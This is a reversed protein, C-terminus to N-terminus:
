NSQRRGDRNKLRRHWHRFFADLALVDPAGCDSRFSEMAEVFQLYHSSKSARPPEYGFHRLTIEVPTNFAPWKVPNHAALIKSAGNLGFGRIHNKGNREVVSALRQEISTHEDLLQVLARKLRAKRAFLKDRFANRLRGLEGIRYFRNWEDRTFDFIPIHLAERIEQVAIRRKEYAQKFEPTDFYNKAAAVAKEREQFVAETRRDIKEAVFAEQKRIRNTAKRVRLYHSEYEAIDRLTLDRALEWQADFWRILNALTTADSTFLRCEINTRLGGVSLNGSGVVAFSNQSEVATVIVVKPHFIDLKNALRASIFCKGRRSSCLRKWERLLGPETQFFNLGTMLRATATSQIIFPAVLRWGRFHAFATALRIFIASRLAFEINFDNPVGIVASRDSPIGFLSRFSGISMHATGPTAMVMKEKGWQVPRYHPHFSRVNDLAEVFHFALKDNM